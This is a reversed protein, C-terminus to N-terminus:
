FPRASWQVTSFPYFSVMQVFNIMIFRKPATIGHKRDSWHKGFQKMIVGKLVFPIAVSLIVTSLQDFLNQLGKDIDEQTDFPRVGGGESEPKIAISKFVALVLVISFVSLGAWLVWFQIISGLLQAIVFGPLFYNVDHIHTYELRKEQAERMEEDSRRDLELHPMRMHAGFIELQNTVINSEPAVGNLADLDKQNMPFVYTGEEHMFCREVVECQRVGIVYLKNLMRMMSRIRLIACVILVVKGFAAFVLVIRAIIQGIIVKGIVNNKLIRKLRLFNNDAFNQFTSVITNKVFGAYGNLVGPAKGLASDEVNFIQTVASPSAANARSVANARLEDMKAQAIASGNQVAESVESFFDTQLSFLNEEVDGYDIYPSCPELVAHLLQSANSVTPDSAIDHARDLAPMVCRQLFGSISEEQWVWYQIFIGILGAATLLVAASVIPPFEFDYKQHKKSPADSDKWLYSGKGKCLYREIKFFFGKVAAKMNWTKCAAAMLQRRKRKAVVIFGPQVYDIVSMIISVNSFYFLVTLVFLIGYVIPLDGNYQFYMCEAFQKEMLATAPKWKGVVGTTFALSRNASMDTKRWIEEMEDAYLYQYDQYYSTAQKKTYVVTGNLLFCNNNNLGQDCVALSGHLYSQTGLFLIVWVAAACLNNLGKCCKWVRRRERTKYDYFLTKGFELNDYAFMFGLLIVILLASFPNSSGFFKTVNSDVNQFQRVAYLNCVGMADLPKVLSPCWDRRRPVILIKEHSHSAGSHVYGPNYLSKGFKAMLYKQGTTVQFFDLQLPHCSPAKIMYQEYNLIMVAMFFMALYVILSLKLKQRNFLFDYGPSGRCSFSHCCISSDMRSLRDKKIIPVLHRVADVMTEEARVFDEIKEDVRIEPGNKCRGGIMYEQYVTATMPALLFKHTRNQDKNFLRDKASKLASDVKHALTFRKAAGGKVQKQASM